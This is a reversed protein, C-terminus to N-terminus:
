EVLRYGQASPIDHTIDKTVVRSFWGLDFEYESSAKFSAAVEEQNDFAVGQSVHIKGCNTTEVLVGATSASGRTGGSSTYPKASIVECRISEIGFSNLAPMLMYLIAYGFFLCGTLKWYWKLPPREAPKGSRDDTTTM